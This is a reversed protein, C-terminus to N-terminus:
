AEAGLAETPQINLARRVPVICAVTCVTVMGFLYVAYLGLSRPTLPFSGGSMLVLIVLIGTGAGVGVGIQLLARSFVALVVQRNTAGLAVRLGIERTSRSVTFAMVSYIGANSLLLALAGAIVIVKFWSAYAILTANAARDITQPDMIRLTPDVAVALGRLRRTFSSPEGAIHMALYVLSADAVSLPHYVGAAHPLDPDITLGVEQAVGVIEYPLGSEGVPPGAWRSERAV